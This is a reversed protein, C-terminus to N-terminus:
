FRAAQFRQLKNLGEVWNSRQLWSGRLFGQVGEVRSVWLTWSGSLLDGEYLNPAPHSRGYLKVADNRSCCQCLVLVSFYNKLNQELLQSTQFSSLQLNTPVARRAWILVYWGARRLVIMFGVNLLACCTPSNKWTGKTEYLHGTRGHQRHEGRLRMLSMPRSLTSINQAWKDTWAHDHRNATALDHTM